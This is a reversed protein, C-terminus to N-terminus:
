EKKNKRSFIVDFSFFHFIAKSLILTCFLEGRPYFCFDLPSWSENLPKTNKEQACGRLPIKSRKKLYTMIFLKLDYIEKQNIPPSPHVGM